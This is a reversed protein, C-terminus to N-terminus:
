SNINIALDILGITIRNLNIQAKEAEIVNLQLDEEIRSIQSQLLIAHQLGEADNTSFYAKMQDIAQILRGEGLTNLCDSQLAKGKRAAEKKRERAMALVSQNSPRLLSNQRYFVLFFSLVLLISLPLLHRYSQLFYVDLGYDNVEIAKQSLWFTIFVLSLYALTLGLLLRHIRPHIAKDSHKNLFVHVNLLVVSPLILAFFWTWILVEIGEIKGMVQQFVICLLLGASTWHWWRLLQNRSEALLKWNHM